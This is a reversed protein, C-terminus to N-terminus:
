IKIGNKKLFSDADKKFDKVAQPVEGEEAVYDLLDSYFVMLKDRDSITDSQSMSSTLDAETFGMAITVLEHALFRYVSNMGENLFDDFTIVHKM